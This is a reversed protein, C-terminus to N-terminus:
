ADPRSYKLSRRAPALLTSISTDVRRRLDVADAALWRHQARLGIELPL